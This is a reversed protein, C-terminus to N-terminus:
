IKKELFSNSIKKKDYNEQEKNHFVQANQKQTKQTM